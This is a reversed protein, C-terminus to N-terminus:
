RLAKGHPAPTAKMAQRRLKLLLFPFKALRIKRGDIEITQRIEM